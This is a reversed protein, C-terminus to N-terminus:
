FKTTSKTAIFAFLPECRKLFPLYSSLFIHRRLFCIGFGFEQETGTISTERTVQPHNCLLLLLSSILLDLVDSYVSFNTFPAQANLIWDSQEALALGVMLM